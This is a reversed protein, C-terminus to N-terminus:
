TKRKKNNKNISKDLPNLKYFYVIIEMFYNKPLIVQIYSYNFFCLELLFLM